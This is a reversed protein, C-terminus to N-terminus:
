TRIEAGSYLVGYEPFFGRVEYELSVVMLLQASPKDFLVEGIGVITWQNESAQEENGDSSVSVIELAMGLSRSDFIESVVPDHYFGLRLWKQKSTLLKVESFELVRAGYLTFPVGSIRCNMTFLQPQHTTGPHSM